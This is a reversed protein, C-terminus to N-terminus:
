LPMEWATVRSRTIEMGILFNATMTEANRCLDMDARFVAEEFLGQHRIFGDTPIPEEM